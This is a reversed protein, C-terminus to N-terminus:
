GSSPSLTSFLKPRRAAPKSGRCNRCGISARTTTLRAQASGALSNTTHWSLLNPTNILKPIVSVVCAAFAPALMDELLWRGGGGLRLPLALRSRILAGEDSAGM